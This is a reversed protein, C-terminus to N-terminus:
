SILERIKEMMKEADPTYEGNKGGDVNSSTFLELTRESTFFVKWCYRYADVRLWRSDYEADPVDDNFLIPLFDRGASYKPQYRFSSFNRATSYCVIDMGECVDPWRGLEDPRVRILRPEPIGSALLLREQRMIEVAAEEEGLRMDPITVVFPDFASEELMLDFLPRAPFVDQGPTLFLTSVKEGASRKESLKQVKDPLTLQHETISPIRFDHHEPTGVRIFKALEPNAEKLISHVENPDERSLGLFSKKKILPVRYKKLLTLPEALLDLRNDLYTQWFFGKEQLFRTLQTELQAIVRYHDYNGCIRDFFVDLADSSLVAKRFVMFYSCIHHELLDGRYGTMGWFDCLEKEMNRFVETFPYVPGCCSDNLMVLERINGDDWAGTEHLFQLGRKYSGFDYQYHRRFAAHWVIGDLKKLEDPFIPCDGVLIINDVAKKIGRILIMLTEPIKGDSFYCSVIATRGNVDPCRSFTETFSETGDPFRVFDENLQLVSVESNNARGEKEFNLLPNIRKHWVDRHIALYEDSCFGESPDLREFGGAKLYHAALDRCDDLMPDNRRYYEADFYPSHAILDRSSTDTYFREAFVDRVQRFNKAMWLAKKIIQIGAM